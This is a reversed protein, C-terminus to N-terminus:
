LFFQIELSFTLFVTTGLARSVFGSLSRGRHLDKVGGRGEQADLARLSRGVCFCRWYDCMM